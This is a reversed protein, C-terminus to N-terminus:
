FYLSVTVNCLSHFTLKCNSWWLQEIVWVNLWIHGCLIEGCRWIICGAFGTFTEVQHPRVLLAQSMLTPCHGPGGRLASIGCTPARLLLQRNVTEVLWLGSGVTLLMPSSVVSPTKRVDPCQPRSRPWHQGSGCPKRSTFHQWLSTKM